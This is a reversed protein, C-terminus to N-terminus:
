MNVNQAEKQEARLQRLAQKDMSQDWASYAEVVIWLLVLVIWLSSKIKEKM